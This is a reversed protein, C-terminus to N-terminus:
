VLETYNVFWNIRDPDNSFNKKGCRVVNEDGSFRPENSHTNLVFEYKYDYSITKCKKVFQLCECRYTSESCNSCEWGHKIDSIVYRQNIGYMANVMNFTRVITDCKASTYKYSKNSNCGTYTENYTGYLLMDDVKDLVKCINTHYQLGNDKKQKIVIKYALYIFYYSTSYRDNMIDSTIQTKFNMKPVSLVNCLDEDTEDRKRAYDKAFEIMRICKAAAEDLGARTDRQYIMSNISKSVGYPIYDLEVLLTFIDDILFCQTSSEM